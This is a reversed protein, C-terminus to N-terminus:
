TSKRDKEQFKVKATYVGPSYSCAGVNEALLVGNPYNRGNGGPGAMTQGNGCEITSNYSGTNIPTLGTIKFSLSVSQSEQFYYKTDGEKQGVPYVSVKFPESSIVFIEKSVVYPQGNPAIIKLSVMHRGPVTIRCINDAFTGGTWVPPYGHFAPNGNAGNNSSGTYDDFQGDEECDVTYSFYQSDFGAYYDSQYRKDEERMGILLDINAPAPTGPNFFGSNQDNIPPKYDGNSPFEVQFNFNREQFPNRNTLGGTAEMGGRTAKLGVTKIGPTTFPCSTQAQYWYQNEYTGWPWQGPTMWSHRDLQFGNYWEIARQSNNLYFGNNYQGGITQEYNGDNDCDVYFTTGGDFNGDAHLLIAPSAPVKTPGNYDYFGNLWANGVYHADVSLWNAAHVQHPSIAFVFGVAFVFAGLKITKSYPNTMKM